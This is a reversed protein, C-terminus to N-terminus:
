LSARYNSFQDHSIRMGPPVYITTDHAEIVGPGEFWMGPAIREGDYIAIEYWAQEDPLYIRRRGVQAEDASKPKAAFEEHRPKERRGIGTVVYNMLMLGAENWATGSGFEKEYCSDFYSRLDRVRDQNLAGPELPVYLENMQGAYRFDAGHLLEIQRSEFGARALDDSVRKVLGEAAAAVSPFRDSDDVFCGVTASYRRLYDAELLGSASFAASQAPIILNTIGLKRCIGACFLPLAGGYAVFTFRRPDHGRSISVEHIANAMNAVVLAWAGAAARVVDWGLPKAIQEEIAREAAGVDLKYRGGLYDAPNLFKLVAACDTVTPRKGGRGYCVPGPTSGASQPGVQPIGRSDLWVISGGGAGVSVIDLLSLATEFAGIRCRQVVKPRSNEILTTDFSTGGMDGCLVTNLGYRRGLAAAAIAGGAPGSSYLLIPAKRVEEETLVGGMGHFFEVERQYGRSKLWHGLRTVFLDVQPQVYSNLIATMWREYERFVSSMSSSLSVFHGPAVEQILRECEREHEPNVFSWLLCVAFTDVGKALLRGIGQKIRAPNLDCLKRGSRDIREEIPCILDAPVVEPLNRQAHDDRVNLRAGRGVRIIDEFGATVLTGVRCGKLETIANTVITSGNVFVELHRSVLEEVSMDLRTAALGLAEVMGRSYDDHTTLAKARVVRDKEVAVLDTHTGGVDIGIKVTV